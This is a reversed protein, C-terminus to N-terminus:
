LLFIRILFRFRARLRVRAETMSRPMITMPELARLKLSASSMELTVAAETRSSSPTMCPSPLPLKMGSCVTVRAWIAMRTQRIRYPSLSFTLCNSPTVWYLSTPVM